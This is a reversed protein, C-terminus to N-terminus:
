IDDGDLNEKRFIYNNTGGKESVTSSLELQAHNHQM